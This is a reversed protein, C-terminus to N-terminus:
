AGRAPRLIVMGRVPGHADVVPAGSDGGEVPVNLVIVDRTPRGGRADNHSLTGSRGLTGRRVVPELEGRAPDGFAGAASASRRRGADRPQRGRGARAGPAGPAGIHILAVDAGGSEVVDGM